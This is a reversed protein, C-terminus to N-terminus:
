KMKVNQLGCYLSIGQALEKVVQLKSNSPLRGFPLSGGDGSTAKKPVRGYHGRARM